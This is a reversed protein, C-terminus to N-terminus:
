VNRQFIEDEDSSSTELMGLNATFGIIAKMANNKKM